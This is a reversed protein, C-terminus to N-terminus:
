AYGPYKVEPMGQPSPTGGSVDITQPAALEEELPSDEDDYPSDSEAESGFNCFENHYTCMVAGSQAVDCCSWQATNMTQYYYKHCFDLIAHRDEASMSDWDGVTEGEPDDPGDSM